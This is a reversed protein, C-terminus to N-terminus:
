EIVEDARVLLSPPIAIGLDKAAGVNIVLRYKEPAQVPLGGAPEGRLVRGIYAAARRGQEVYDPSYSMLGGLDTYSRNPYIGPLRYEAALAVIARQNSNTISGPMTMLAGEPRHGFSAFVRRIDAEGTVYALEFRVRRSSPVADAWPTNRADLVLISTRSPAAENILQLWKDFIRLEFNTFGTINGGPHPLGPVLGQGVPDAVNMFVVPIDTTLRKVARMGVLGFVVLADPRSEVLQRALEEVRAANGDGWRITLDPKDEGNRGLEALGARFADLRRLAERNSEQEPILVAVRKAAQQAAAVAPSGLAACAALAKLLTRRRM